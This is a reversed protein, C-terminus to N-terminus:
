SHDVAKRLLAAVCAADADALPLHPLDALKVWALGLHELCSPEQALEAEIFHIRLRNADRNRAAEGDHVWLTTGANLLEAGLEEGLERALAADHSEGPEVKGGPFEWLGGHQKDLPRQAVLYYGDRRIVAAVVDIIRSSPM